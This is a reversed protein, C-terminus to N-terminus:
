CLRNIDESSVLGRLVRVADTTWELYSLLWAYAEGSIPGSALNAVDFSLKQLTDRLHHRDIGPLCNLFV